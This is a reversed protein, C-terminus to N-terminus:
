RGSFVQREWLRNTFSSSWSVAADAVWLLNQVYSFILIGSIGRRWRSRGAEGLLRPKEIGLRRLSVLLKASEAMDADVKSVVSAFAEVM